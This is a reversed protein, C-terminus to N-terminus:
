ETTGRSNCACRSDLPQHSIYDWNVSYLNHKRNKKKSVFPCKAIDLGFKRISIPFPSPSLSAMILEYLETAAFVSYGTQGERTTDYWAQIYDCM